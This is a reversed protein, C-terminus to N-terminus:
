DKRNKQYEKIGMKQKIYRYELMDDKLKPYIELYKEKMINIIDNYNLKRDVMKNKLLAHGIGKLEDKMSPTINTDIRNNKLFSDGMYLDKEKIDKQMPEIGIKDLYEEILKNIIYEHSYFAEIEKKRMKMCKSAFELRKKTVLDIQCTSKNTMDFIYYIRYINMGKKFFIYIRYRVNRLM